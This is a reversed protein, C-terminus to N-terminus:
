FYPYEFTGDSGRSEDDQPVQSRLHEGTIMIRNSEPVRIQTTEETSFACNQNFQNGNPLPCLFINNFWRDNLPVIGNTAKAFNAPDTCDRETLDVPSYYCSQTAKCYYNGSMICNFCKNNWESEITPEIAIQHSSSLSILNLLTPTLLIKLM